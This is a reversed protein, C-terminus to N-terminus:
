KRGGAITAPANNKKKSSPVYPVRLLVVVLEDLKTKKRNIKDVLKQYGPSATFYYKMLRMQRKRWKYLLYYGFPRDLGFTLAHLLKARKNNDMTEAYVYRYTENLCSNFLHYKQKVWKWQEPTYSGGIAEALGGNLHANTGLLYYQYFQLTSDTFYPRWASLPAEANEGYAICADIYFQAFVTEFHRVLRQTATDERELKKEVLQLFRFYLYGFHRCISSTKGISDLQYLQYFPYEKTQTNGNINLLLLIFIVFIFKM